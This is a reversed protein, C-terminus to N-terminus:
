FRTLTFGTFQPPPPPPVPPRELDDLVDRLRAHRFEYVGGMQRLVGRKRADELFRIPHWPLRRTGALLVRALLWQGWCTHYVFVWLAVYCSFLASFRMVAGLVGWDMVALGAIVALALNFVVVVRVLRVVTNRRDARLLAVPSPARETLDLVLEPADEAMINPSTTSSILLPVLVLAALLYRALILVHGWTWEGGVPALERTFAAGSVSSLVAVVVFLCLLVLLLRGTGTVTAQHRWARSSSHLRAPPTGHGDLLALMGMCVGGGISLLMTVPFGVQFGYWGTAVVGTGVGGLVGCGVLVLLATGMPLADVLRWWAIEGPPSKGSHILGGYHAMDGTHQALNVLWRHAQDPRYRPPPLEPREGAGTPPPPGAAYVVPVLEAALFREIAGRDTFSLLEAPDRSSNLYVTRALWVSLASGMAQALPGDPASRIARIVPEWQAVREAPASALLYREAADLGVPRAEVVTVATLTQAADRGAALFHETRCTLILPSAAPLARNMEQLATSRTAEPIEDLGDLVPLVRNAAVLHHAARGARLHPYDEEIRRILWVRLHEREPNWDRLAFLVPVPDSARAGRLLALVLLLALTTKGTGAEGLVVLRQRPLARFAAAFRDPEDSRAALDTSTWHVELPVPTYLRQEAAEEQWQAAVIRCLEQAAKDIPFADGLHVHVQDINGAQVVFDATGSFENRVPESEHVAM